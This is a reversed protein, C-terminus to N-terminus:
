RPYDYKLGASKRRRWQGYATSSATCLPGALYERRNPCSPERCNLRMSSNCIPSSFRNQSTVLHTNKDLPYGTNTDKCEACGRLNSAYTCSRGELFIRITCFRVNLFDLTLSSDSLYCCGGRASCTRGRRFRLWSAEVSFRRGVVPVNVFTTTRLLSNGLSNGIANNRRPTGRFLM